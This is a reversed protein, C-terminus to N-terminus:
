VERLNLGCCSCESCLWYRAGPVHETLGCSKVPNECHLQVM